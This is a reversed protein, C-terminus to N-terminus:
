NCDKEVIWGNHDSKRVVLGEHRLHASFADELDMLKSENSYSDISGKVICGEMYLDSVDVTKSGKESIVTVKNAKYELVKIVRQSEFTLALNWIALVFLLAGIFIKEGYTM